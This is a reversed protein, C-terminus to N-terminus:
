KSAEYWNPGVNGDSRIPVRLPIPSSEGFDEFTEQV